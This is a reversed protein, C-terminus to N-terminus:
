KVVCCPFMWAYTKNAETFGELFNPSDPNWWDVFGNQLVYMLDKTLPYYGVPNEKSMLMQTFCSDLYETYNEKKVFAGTEDYFYRTVASGGYNDKGNVREFLSIFREQVGLNVLVVPGGESLRYYGNAEDYYLDYTGDPASIDLYSVRFNYTYAVSGKVTNTEKM